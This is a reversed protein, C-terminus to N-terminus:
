DVLETGRSRLSRLRGVTEMWGFVQEVLTRQM